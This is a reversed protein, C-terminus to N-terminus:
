ERARVLTRTETVIADCPVDWAQHLAEPVEQVDFGIGVALPPPAQQQRFALTRDYWGGGMGIRHCRADFGTLPLAILAAVVLAIASYELHELLRMPVGSPGTWHAPDTLFQAAQAFLNM